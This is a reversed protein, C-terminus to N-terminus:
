AAIWALAFGWMRLVAAVFIPAFIVVATAIGVHKWHRLTKEQQLRLRANVRRIMINDKQQETRPFTRPQKNCWMNNINNMSTGYRVTSRVLKEIQYPDCGVMSLAQRTAHEHVEDLVLGRPVCVVKGDKRLRIQDSAYDHEILLESM